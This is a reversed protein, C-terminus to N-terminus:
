SRGSAPSTSWSVVPTSSVMSLPLQGRIINSSLAIQMAHTANKETDSGPSIPSHRDLQRALAHHRNRCAGEFRPRHRAVGAVEVRPQLRYERACTSACAPPPVTTVDSRDVAFGFEESDDCRGRVPKAQPLEHLSKKLVDSDAAVIFVCEPQDLFTKLDM